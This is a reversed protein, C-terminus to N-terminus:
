ADASVDRWQNPEILYGKQDRQPHFTLDPWVPKARHESNPYIEIKPNPENAASIASEAQKPPLEPTEM